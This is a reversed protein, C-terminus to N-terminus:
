SGNLAADLAPGTMAVVTATERAEAPLGARDAEERLLVPGDSPTVSAGLRVVLEALVDFFAGRPFRSVAVCVENVDVHVEHGEATRLLVGGLVDDGGETAHPALVEQVVRMDLPEPEGDRYRLVFLTRSM